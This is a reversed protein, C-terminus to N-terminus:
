WEKCDYTHIMTHLIPIIRIVIKTFSRTTALLLWFCAPLGCAMEWHGHQATAKLLFAHDSCPMLAVHAHRPLHSDSVTASHLDFPSSVNWVRLPAAHCPCPWAVHSDPKLLKYHKSPVYHKQRQATLVIRWLILIKYNWYLAYCTLLGSDEM